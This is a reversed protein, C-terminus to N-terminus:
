DQPSDSLFAVLAETAKRRHSLRNKESATMEAFTKDFGEPIFVPDYGFGLDGRPETSISGECVGTFLHEKGGIILSIVTKFRARRDSAGKLRELLLRRNRDDNAPEGSYRASRAGPEGGLAHVELGSDESFCDGGTLRHVYTSKETANAELSPHPEPIDVPIGAEDLSLIRFRGELALRLESVKHPNRTAFLLTEM